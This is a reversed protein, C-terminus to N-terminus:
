DAREHEHENHKDHNGHSYKKCAQWDAMWQAHYAKREDKQRANFAKIEPGTPHTAMFKRRDAQQGRVFEDRDEKLAAKCETRNAYLEFDYTTVNGTTNVVVKDFYGAIGTDSNSTDGLNLTFGSITSGPQDIAM